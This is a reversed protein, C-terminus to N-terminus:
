GRRRRAAALGFLGVGLLAMSTPEPVANVVISDSLTLGSKTVVNLTIEYTDLANPDFSPNGFAMNESNQEGGGDGSLANDTIVGPTASTNGIYIPVVVSVSGANTDIISLSASSLSALGGTTHISFDFNWTALNSPFGAPIVPAVGTPVAYVDTVPTITAGQSRIQARLGLELANGNNDDLGDFITFHNNTDGTYTYAGPANLSGDDVIQAFAASGPLTLGALATGGIMLMAKLRM